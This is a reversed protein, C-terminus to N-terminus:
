REFHLPRTNYIIIYVYKEIKIEFIILRLDEYCFWATNDNYDRWNRITYVGWYCFYTYLACPDKLILLATWGPLSILNTAEPVIEIRMVQEM